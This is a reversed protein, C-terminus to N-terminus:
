WPAWQVRFLYSSAIAKCDHRAPAYETDRAMEMSLADFSPSSTSQEISASQVSGDADLQVLIAATAAVDQARVGPPIPPPSSSAVVSAPANRQTCRAASAPPREAAPAGTPVPTAAAIERPRAHAAVVHPAAVLARHRQPQSRRPQAHPAPTVRRITQVTTRRLSEMAVSRTPRPPHVFFALIVHVLISLAFAAVLM